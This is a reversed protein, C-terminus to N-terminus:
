GDRRRRRRRYWTARSIGEVLWPKVRQVSNEVFDVRPRASYRRVTRESISLANAIAKAGGGRSKAAIVLTETLRARRPRTARATQIKSFECADFKRWTWSAVSKTISRVESPLLPDAFEGNFASAIGTLRAFWRSCTDGAEKGLVVTLYAHHRLRDFLDCNRSLGASEFSKPFSCVDTPELFSFLSM